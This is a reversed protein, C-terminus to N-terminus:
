DILNVGWTGYDGPTGGGVEGDAMTKIFRGEIQDDGQSPTGMDNYKEIFFTAFGVVTVKKDPPPLTSIDCVPVIIVRPCGTRYNNWICDFGLSKCSGSYSIDACRNIRSDPDGKSGNDIASRTEGVMNGEKAPIVDGIKITGPYGNKLHEKYEAGGGGPGGFDLAGYEGATLSAGSGWKLTYLDGYRPSMGDPFLLPAASVGSKIPGTIAKAHANRKGKTIGLVSAFSLKIENRYVDISVTRNVKDVEIKEIEPATLGNKYAYERAKAEAALAAADPNPPETSLMVKAFEQAGALAAADAVMVLKRKNHSLIGTDVVLALFGFLVTLMLAVLVLTAGKENSWFRKALTKTSFVEKKQEENYSWYFV